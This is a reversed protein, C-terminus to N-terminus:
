RLEDLHGRLREAAAEARALRAREKEIVDKPAKGTFGPNQLKQRLSEIEREKQELERAQRAGEGTGSAKPLELVVQTEGVVVRRDAKLSGDAGDLDLQALTAVYRQGVAQGLLPHTSELRARARGVGAASEQRMNRIKQVVDLLHAMEALLAADEVAPDPKPWPAYMITEGQHPLRQWLEETIFPM